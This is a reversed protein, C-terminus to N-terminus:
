EWYISFYFNMHWVVLWDYKIPLDGLLPPKLKLFQRYISTNIPCNDIHIHAM